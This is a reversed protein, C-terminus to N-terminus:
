SPRASNDVALRIHDRDARVRKPRELDGRLARLRLLQYRAWARDLDDFASHSLMRVYIREVGEM